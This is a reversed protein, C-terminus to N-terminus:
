NQTLIKKNNFFNTVCLPFGIFKRVSEPFIIDGQEFISIQYNFHSMLLQRAQIEQKVMRNNKPENKVSLEENQGEFCVRCCLM